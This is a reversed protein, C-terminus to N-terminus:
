NTENIDGTFKYTFGAIFGEYFAGRMSSLNIEREQQGVLKNIPVSKYAERWAIDELTGEEAGRRIDLGLARSTEIEEDTM